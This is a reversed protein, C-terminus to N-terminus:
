IGNSGNFLTFLIFQVFLSFKNISHTQIDFTMWFFSSMQVNTRHNSRENKRRFHKDINKDFPPLRSLFCLSNVFRSSCFVFLYSSFLCWQLSKKHHYISNLRLAYLGVLWVASKYPININQTLARAIHITKTLKKRMEGNKNNNTLKMVFVLNMCLIVSRRM